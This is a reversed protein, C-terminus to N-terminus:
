FYCGTIARWAVRTSRALVYMASRFLPRDMTYGLESRLRRDELDSQARLAQNKQEPYIRARSWFSRVHVPRSEQVFGAGTFYTVFKHHEVNHPIEYVADVVDRSPGTPRRTVREAGGPVLRRSRGRDQRTESRPVHTFQLLGQSQYVM